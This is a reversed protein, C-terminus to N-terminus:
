QEEQSRERDYPSLDMFLKKSDQETLEQDLVALLEEQRPQGLTLRYLSLVKILRQYRLKDRSLPYLPVIREIPIRPQGEKTPLCWFPVLDSFNGKKERGAREFMREWDFERGYQQAINQRVALCKYRNVRGERQELDIPNSPLNWHVVKRCYAHFDLGEQGISTTALVFPRFPSNFARRINDTHTAHEEDRKASFYGVAFHTRMRARNKEQDPFSERTDIQLTATDIFGDAMAQKLEAGPVALVHAYEDLVAQLNGEVCYRFVTQYYADDSKRGYLLDLIAASEAKNFLSVFLGAIEGATKQVQSIEASQWSRRLLRYACVAPSAIAMDTLIDAADTPIASLSVGKEAGDLARICAALSQASATGRVPIGKEKRLMELRAKVKKGVERRVYAIDRGLYEEPCYCEALKPSPLTVITESEERLRTVGYRREEKTAFYGRGWKLSADHYLKGITRREAEYSLMVSLMRPVMEWSSFVLVKSYNRHRSFVGGTNYYPNSPPIWLLNEAGEREQHFATEALRELKAHEFPIPRYNQIASRKLLLHSVTRGATAAFDFGRTFHARLQKKLQYNEMFSLLYPSSKVYEMPVNRIRLLDGRRGQAAVQDLLSQMADFSLIDGESVPVERVGSDDLIGTNFRETRCIGQYLQEEAEAKRAMLVTLKEGSVECLAHSYQQWVTRFQERQKPRHFLFDMVQMFEGYHEAGEDQAIEELTAYPKYPTASLLLVKTQGSSLFQRALMAEESDDEPAILDRFRQFEDMIVLDPELRSLSIEAFVRRLRNILFRQERQDDLRTTCRQQIREVLWSPDQLRRTLEEAMDELYGSGNKGCESVKTEYYDVYGQWHREATYALFKRLPRSYAQFMPLRRLHAYMLAREEQNGCGSTMTFSTAPTLPILQAYEHDRGASQYLKLHQMSLRSESVKLQDQIGLKSANQSAINVNSCIYIVKFHDDGLEEKHWQAVQRVVERAVITKGLGVEDALLVRNQGGRFVQVIRDATAQQFDKPKM